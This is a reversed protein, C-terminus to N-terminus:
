WEKIEFGANELDKAEEETIEEDPFGEVVWYYKGAKIIVCSNDPTIAVAGPEDEIEEIPTEYSPLPVFCYSVLWIVCVIVVWIVAGKKASGKNKRNKLILQFRETMEDEKNSALAATGHLTPFDIKKGSSKLTSVITELYEAAEDLTLKETICLDCKMELNRDLDKKLLYVMPNWWFMCCFIHILMKIVIDGNSFHTCEHLLIYYLEQDTYEQDPLLIKRKWIGVGIPIQIERNTLITVNGTIGKIIETRKRRWFSSGSSYKKAYVKKLATMCQEDSREMLLTIAKSIKGYEDVFRMMLVFFISLWLIGFVDGIVFNYNGFSYETMYLIEYIDSFIGRVPIGQTFSFDIPMLMRLACFLYVLIVCGIGFSKVFYSKKRIRYIMAVLIGSWFVATLVSSFTIKM